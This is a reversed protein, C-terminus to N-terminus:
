TYSSGPTDEDTTASLFDYALPKDFAASTVWLPYSGNAQFLERGGIRRFHGNLGNGSNDSLSYREQGM